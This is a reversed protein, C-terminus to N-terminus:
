RKARFAPILLLLTGFVVVIAGIWVWVQFPNVFAKFIARLKVPKADAIENVGAFALYFDEIPSSKIDVEATTEQKKTYIRREPHLDAIKENTDARSITVDAKLAQYEDAKVEWFRNLTLRYHAIVESEGEALVIDREVKHGYSAVIAIAMIAAGSHITLAALRRSGAAAVVVDRSRKRFFEAYGGAATAIVGMSLSLTVLTAVGRVGAGAALGAAVLGLVLPGAIKKLTPGVEASRWPILPTVFMLIMLGLFLPGTVKDFYPPGLVSKNGTFGESIIPFLVGWIITFALALFLLNNLLLLFERSFLSSLTGEVSLKRRQAFMAAATIVGVVGIFALFIWGIETEAFAHVSQVVGSRTLFTGFVCLLFTLVALFINWGKLIRRSEEVMLSHILATGTLWPIFSANEVPDWAWFGGWGLEIYAWHGGLVIGATLFMWCLLTWRRCVAIWGEFSYGSFIAALAMAFPLTFGTFGLYLMPPHIMMSPNQLLPNLGNGDPPRIHAPVLKFPNAEFLVLGFFFTTVIAAAPVLASRFTIPLGRERLLLAAVYVGTITAWLLMSGAMGGWVASIRYMTPLDNSATQWVYLYHYDLNLFNVILAGLSAVGALASIKLANEASIGLQSSRNSHAFFGGILAYASTLFAIALFFLGYSQNISM